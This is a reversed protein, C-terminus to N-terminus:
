KKDEDSEAVVYYINEPTAMVFCRSVDIDAPWSAFSMEEDNRDKAFVLYATFFTVRVPPLKASEEPQSKYIRISEGENDLSLWSRHWKQFFPMGAFGAVHPSDLCIYSCHIALLRTLM